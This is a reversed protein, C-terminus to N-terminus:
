DKCFGRGARCFEGKATGSQGLARVKVPDQEIEVLKDELVFLLSFRAM